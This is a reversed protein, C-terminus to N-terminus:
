VLRRTVEVVVAHAKCSELSHEGHGNKLVLKGNREVLRGIIVEDGHLCLIINGKVPHRDRDIIVISDEPVDPEMCTGKVKFGEVNAPAAKERARYVYELPAVGEGAHITFHDYVPISVPAALRYRELIEEPTM